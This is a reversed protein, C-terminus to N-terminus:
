SLGHATCVLCLNKLTSLTKWEAGSARRHGRFKPPPTPTTWAGCGSDHPSPLAPHDVSAVGLFPLVPSVSSGLPWGIASSTAHIRASVDLFSVAGAPPGSSLAQGSAPHPKTPLLGWPCPHHLQPVFDTAVSPPTSSALLLTQLRAGSGGPLEAGEEVSGWEQFARWCLHPQGHTGHCWQPQVHLGLLGWKQLAEPWLTTPSGGSCVRRGGLGSMDKESWRLDEWSVRM